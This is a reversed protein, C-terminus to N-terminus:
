NNNTTSGQFNSANKCNKQLLKFGSVWTRPSGQTELCLFSVVVFDTYFYM